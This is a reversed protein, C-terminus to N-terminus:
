ASTGPARTLTLWTLVAQVILALAILLIYGELQAGGTTAKLAAGALWLMPLSGVM